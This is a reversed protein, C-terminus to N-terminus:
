RHDHVAITSWIARSDVGAAFRFEKFENLTRGNSELPPVVPIEASSLELTFEHEERIQEDTWRGPRYFKAIIPDREDIGVQYVRNEYSNLALMRGDTVLGTSEVAQLVTDPDLRDYPKAESKDPMM